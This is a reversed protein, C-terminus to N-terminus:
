SGSRIGLEWLRGAIEFNGLPSCLLIIGQEEARHITEPDPQANETIIIASLDLLAAVAIINIHSMLTIWLAGPKAGVMVCSLLDSAYASTPKREPTLDSHTLCILGLLDIIQSLNM